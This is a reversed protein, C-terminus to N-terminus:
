VTHTKQTGWAERRPSLFLKVLISVFHYKRQEAEVQLPQPRSGLVSVTRGCLKPTGVPSRGTSPRGTGMQEGPRQGTQTLRGEGALQGRLRPAQRLRRAVVRGCPAGSPTPNDDTGRSNSLFPSSSSQQCTPAVQSWFRYGKSAVRIKGASSQAYGFVSCTRRSVGRPCRPARLVPSPPSRLATTM